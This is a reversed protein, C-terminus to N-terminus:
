VGLLITRVITTFPRPFRTQTVESGLNTLGVGGKWTPVKDYAVPSESIQEFYSDLRRHDIFLYDILPEMVIAPSSLINDAQSYPLCCVQLLM